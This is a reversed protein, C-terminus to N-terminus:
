FPFTPVTIIDKALTESATAPAYKEKPGVKERKDKTFLWCSRQFTKKNLLNRVCVAFLTIGCTSHVIYM